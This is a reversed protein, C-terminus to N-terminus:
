TPSIIHFISVNCDRRKRIFFWRKKGYEIPMSTIILNNWSSFNSSKNLSMKNLLKFSIRIELLSMILWSQLLCEQFHIFKQSFLFSSFLDFINLLLKSFFSITWIIVLLWMSSTCCIYPKNCWLKNINSISAIRSTNSTNISYCFLHWLIM